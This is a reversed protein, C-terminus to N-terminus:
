GVILLISLWPVASALSRWYFNGSTVVRIGTRWAATMSIAAIVLWGVSVRGSRARARRASQLGTFAGFVSIVFSLAVLSPDFSSVTTAMGPMPPMATMVLFNAM